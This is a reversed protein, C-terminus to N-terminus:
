IYQFIIKITPPLSCSCLLAAYVYGPEPMALNVDSEIGASVINFSGLIIYDDSTDLSKLLVLQVTTDVTEPTLSAWSTKLVISNTPFQLPANTQVDLINNINNVEKPVCIGVKQKYFGQM